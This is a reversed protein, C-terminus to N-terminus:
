ERGLLEALKDMDRERLKDAVRKNFASECVARQSTSHNALGKKCVPCMM